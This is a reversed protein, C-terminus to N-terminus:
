PLPLNARLVLADEAEAGSERYYGRRLGAEGFGATAYLARAAENERAVELFLTIAGMDRAKKAGASVLRRGTGSRRARPAVGISLIEAEDAAVRILIFGCAAGGTEALLAFAGPTGQLQGISRASWGQAFCLAHLSALTVLDDQTAVRLRLASSADAPLKADPARLYLPKPITQLAPAAAALRAVWLADPQRVTTLIASRGLARFREAAVEGATGAFAVQASAATNAVLEAVADEFKALQLTVIPRDEGTALVYVEGRKADHLVAACSTQAEAMAAAAMADLTTIGALPKKLALRLGRMFAIGVRQGTFTGPGTTVALRDLDAFAIEAERMTEQVMPALSEAHGRETAVFRHARVVDGELVAASCAGLATDVALIKSPM